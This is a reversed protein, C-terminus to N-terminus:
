PTTWSVPWSSRRTPTPGTAPRSSRATRISAASWAPSCGPGCPARGARGRRAAPDPAGGCGHGHEAPDWNLRALALTAEAEAALDQGSRAEDAAARYSREADDWRGEHRATEAREMCSPSSPPLVRVPGPEAEDLRERPTRRLPRDRRRRRRGVGVGALAAPGRPRRARRQAGAGGPHRRALVRPQRAISRPGGSWGTPPSGPGPATSGAARAALERCRRRADELPEVLSAVLAEAPRDSVPSVGDLVRGRWLDDAALFARLAEGEDGRRRAAEGTGLLRRFRGADTAGGRPGTGGAGATSGATTCPDHRRCCVRRLRSLQPDISSPAFGAARAADIKDVPDAAAALLALLARQTSSLQRTIDEGDVRVQFPGLM